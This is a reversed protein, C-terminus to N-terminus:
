FKLMSIFFSQPWSMRVLPTVKSQFIYNPWKYFLTVNSICLSTGNKWSRGNWM